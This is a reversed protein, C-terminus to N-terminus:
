LINQAQERIKELENKVDVVFHSIQASESKAGITSIERNMEQILFTMRKGVPEDLDLYSRFQNLHSDLRECEETIDIKKSFVAAEQIIRNEDIDLEDLFAMLKARSKKFYEDKLQASLAKIKLIVDHTIDLHQKIEITLNKGEKKQMKVLDSVADELAKFLEKNVKEVDFEVPKYEFIESFNLLHELRLPEDSNLSESAQNLLECYHNLLDRNLGVKNQERQGNLSITVKVNGRKLKSNFIRKIDEECSKFIQPLNISFDFYRSNVSRVEVSLTGNELEREVKGFGTMSKIM